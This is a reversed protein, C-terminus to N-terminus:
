AILGKEQFGKRVSKHSLVGIKTLVNLVNKIIPLEPSIEFSKYLKEVETKARAKDELIWALVAENYQIESQINLYLTIFDGLQAGIAQKYDESLSEWTYSFLSYFFGFHRAEDNMHDNMYYKVSPHVTDSDFYTALERILTTEFICAALIEFLEHYKEDLRSKITVMAHNADSFNNNLEPLHPFSERLQLLLDYAMYVHYYEDIIITSTNLKISESYAVPLSEHMISNCAPYVWKIELQIIDQLYKCFSLILIDTKKEISLSAIEPILFLVQKDIPYFYGSLSFDIAKRPRTRISSRSEWKQQYQSLLLANKDLVNLEM